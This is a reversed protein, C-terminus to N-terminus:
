MPVPWDAWAAADGDVGVGAPESGAGATVEEAVDEVEFAPDGAGRGEGRVEGDGVGVGEEGVNM